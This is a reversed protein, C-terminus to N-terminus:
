KTNHCLVADAGVFYNSNRAITLNYVHVPSRLNLATVTRATAPRLGNTRASDRSMTQDGSKLEHAELWERDATYFRHNQSCTVSGKPLGLKILDARQSKWTRLM